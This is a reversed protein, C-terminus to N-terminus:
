LYPKISEEFRVQYTHESYVFQQGSEAVRAREEPRDVYFRIKDLADEKTRATVLHKGSAGFINETAKTWQTLHFGRCGLVEYPRMSTQTVSTDDCQVGLIIKASACLDPLDHNPFYGHFLNMDRLREQGRVDWYAGWVKMSHGSDLSSDLIIDYGRQRSDQMYYSAQLAIDIDYEPRYKGYFHYDPNCAFTLLRATIGEKQYLPIMEETTTFSLDAIKSFAITFHPMVPDEIAWYIMGVGHKNCSERIAYPVVPHYGEFIVYDPKHIDFYREMTEYYFEDPKDLWGGEPIDFYSTEHGAKAIGPLLGHVMLPVANFASFKM